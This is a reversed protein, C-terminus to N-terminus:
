GAHVLLFYLFICPVLNSTELNFHNSSLNPYVITEQSSLVRRVYMIYWEPLFGLHHLSAALVAGPAHLSFHGACLLNFHWLPFHFFPNFAKPFYGQHSLCVTHTWLVKQNLTNWPFVLLSYCKGLGSLSKASSVSMLVLVLSATDHWNRHRAEEFSPQHCSLSNGSVADGLSHLLCSESAMSVMIITILMLTVSTASPSLRSTYLHNVSRWM